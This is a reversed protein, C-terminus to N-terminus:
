PKDGIRIEAPPRSPNSSSSSATDDVTENPVPARLGAAENVADIYRLPIEVIVSEGAAARLQIKLLGDSSYEAIQAETPFLTFGERMSCGGYRSGRCSIVERDGFEANVEEGGRLIARGYRRWDGRYAISGVVQLPKVETNQKVRAVLAFSSRGAINIVPATYEYREAFEDSYVTVPIGLSTVVESRESQGLAVFPNTISFCAFAALLGYWRSVKM